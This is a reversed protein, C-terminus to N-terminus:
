RAYIRVIWQSFGVLQAQRLGVTTNTPFAIEVSAKYDNDWEITLLKRPRNNGIVEDIPFVCSTSWFASDRALLVCNIESYSSIDPITYSGDAMKDSMISEWIVNFPKGNKSINTGNIYIWDSRTRRSVDYSGYMVEDTLQFYDRRTGLAPSNYGVYVYDIYPRYKTGINEYNYRRMSQVVGYEATVSPLGPFMDGSNLVIKPVGDEDTRSASLNNGDIKYGGVTGGMAEITGDTNIKFNENATVIGNLNLHEADIQVTKGTLNIRNAIEEGGLDINKANIQVTDPSINIRAAIEEGGLDINKADIKVTESSLNIRSAIEEGGLDINKADIKVTESSLNIRETIEEGGLDINKANIKITDPSMNIRSAIEKGNYDNYSVKLDIQDSMMTIGSKLEGIVGDYVVSTIEDGNNDLIPNGDNDDITYNHVTGIKSVEARLEETEKNLEIVQGIRFGNEDNVIEGGGLSFYGSNLDMYSGTDESYNQSYIEGGIIQSGSIYGANVFKASLGYDTDTKYEKDAADYYTYDHKGVATTVTKWNDDTFAMINSTIRLQEPSYQETIDDYSKALIGYKDYTIEENNNNKINILASNLGDELMTNYFVYADQGDTAQRTLANYSTAMSSAQNIVSQIDSVSGFGKTLDSFTTNIKSLSDFDITYSILRLRFLDDDVRFWIWNGVEFYDVIPEFEPILLLNNLDSSISHQHEGSKVIEKSAETIFNRARAILQANDLGDSIYNPNSYTDERRYNLFEKYLDEGLFAELNLENQIERMAEFNEESKSIWTDVTDQRVIMERYIINIRALYPQVISQYYSTSADDMLGSSALVTVGGNYADYFSKLREYSYKRVEAELKDNDTISLVEYDDEQGKTSITKIVKQNIFKDYDGTVNITLSPTHYIDEEDKYNVVTFKGRWRHTSANYTADDDITVKVYGSKVIIKAYNLLANNVTALSTGSTLSAVAIPSLADVTLKKGETTATIAGTSPTPMMSSQYYVVKDVAEYYAELYGNYAEILSDYKEDYEDLKQVLEPSMDRKTEESFYYLYASGNPNCSKITATMYEDGAELRFCNKISDVDTDYTIADTLNETGVLITTDYGYYKLDKSGCEPCEHYYDGRYGCEGCVTMLDYANIKRTTSNFTFLCGFETACEGTLFDYVSSGNITFTAIKTLAALSPDVHGITYNPNKDLVRHLLSHKADNPNYFTTGIGDVALDEETNIEVDFLLTQSLEAECLSTGVVTLIDNNTEDLTVSIQFYEDKQKVWILRLSYLEDWLPEVFDDVKKTVTFSIENATNLNRTYKLSSVNSLEGLHTLNRRSLVLSFRDVTGDKHIIAM